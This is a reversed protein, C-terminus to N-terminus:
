THSHGHSKGLSKRYPSPLFASHPMSSAFPREQKSNYPTKKKKKTSKLTIAIAINHFKININPFLSMHIINLM